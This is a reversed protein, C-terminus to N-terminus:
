VFKGHCFGAGLASNKEALGAGLVTFALKQSQEDENIVIRAKHGLVSINKYHMVLPKNNLLYIGQIFSDRFVEEGFLKKYKKEANGHLRNLLLDFDHQEPMWPKGDITVVFPTLTYLEQIFRRCFRKKEIALVQFIKNDNKRICPIIQDIFDERLSRITFIYVNGAQYTKNKELPWLGSFVYFKYGDTGHLNTLNHNEMMSRNIYKGIEEQVDQFFLPKKLFVTIIAENLYM